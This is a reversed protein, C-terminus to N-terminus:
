RYPIKTDVVVPKPPQALAVLGFALLVFLGVHIITSVVTLVIHGLYLSDLLLPLVSQGLPMVVTMVLMGVSWGLLGRYADPRHRRVAGAVIVLLAVACGVNVISSVGYVLNLMFHETGPNM